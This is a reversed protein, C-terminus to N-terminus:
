ARAMHRLGPKECPSSAYELWMVMSAVLRGMEFLAAPTQRRGVEMCRGPFM